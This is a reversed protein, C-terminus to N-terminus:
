KFFKPFDDNDLIQLKEFSQQKRGDYKEECIHPYISDTKEVQDISQENFDYKNEGIESCPLVYAATV